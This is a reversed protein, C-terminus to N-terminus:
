QMRLKWQLYLTNQDRGLADHKAAYGHLWGVSDLRLLAVSKALVSRESGTRKFELELEDV